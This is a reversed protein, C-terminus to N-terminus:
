ANRLVPLAFRMGVVLAVALVVSFALRDGLPLASALGAATSSAVIWSVVFQGVAVIMAAVLDRRRMREAIWVFAFSWAITAAIHLAFGALTLGVAGRSVTGRFVTAGIEAFPLTASGTRRGMALLAGTTAAAALGGVLIGPTIPRLEDPLPM